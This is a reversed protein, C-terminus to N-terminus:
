NKVDHENEKEGHVQDYLKEARMKWDDREGRCAEVEARAQDREAEAQEADRVCFDRANEMWVLGRMNHKAARKWLAAWIGSNYAMQESEELRAHERVLEGRLAGAEAEAAIARARLAILEAAQKMSYANLNEYTTTLEAHAARLAIAASFARSCTTSSSGDNWRTFGCVFEIFGNEFKKQADWFRTCGCAPCQPPAPSVPETTTFIGISM